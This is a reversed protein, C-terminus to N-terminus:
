MLNNIGDSDMRLNASEAMKFRFYDNLESDGKYSKEYTHVIMAYTYYAKDASYSFLNTFTANRVNDLYILASTLHFM